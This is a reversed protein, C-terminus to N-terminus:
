LRSSCTYNRALIRGRTPSVDVLDLEGDGFPDDPEGGLTRVFVEVVERGFGDLLEVVIVFAGWWLCPSEVFATEPSM